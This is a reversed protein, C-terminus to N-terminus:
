QVVPKSQPKLDIKHEVLNVQHVQSYSKAFLNPFGDLMKLYDERETCTISEDLLLENQQRLSAHDVKEEKFMTSTVVQRKSLHSQSQAKPLQLKM